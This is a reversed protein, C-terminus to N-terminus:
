LLILLCYSWANWVKAFEETKLSIRQELYNSLEVVAGNLDSLSRQQLLPKAITSLRLNKLQKSLGKMMM